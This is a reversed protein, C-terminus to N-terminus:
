YESVLVPSRVQLTRNHADIWELQVNFVAGKPILKIGTFFVLPICPHRTPETGIGCRRRGDTAVQMGNTSRREVWHEGLPADCLKFWDNVLLDLEQALADRGIRSCAPNQHEVIGEIRESAIDNCRVAKAEGIVLQLRWAKLVVEMGRVLCHSLKRM